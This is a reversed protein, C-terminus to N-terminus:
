EAARLMIVKLHKNVDLSSLDPLLGARLPM